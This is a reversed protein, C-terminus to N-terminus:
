IVERLELPLEGLRRAAEDADLRDEARSFWPEPASTLRERRRARAAARHAALAENRVVRYLWPLVHEPPPSQTAPRVFPGQLPDDAGGGWQRAFLRLAPAHERFLRGLTTPDIPGMRPERPSKRLTFIGCAPPNRAASGTVAKEGEEGVRA